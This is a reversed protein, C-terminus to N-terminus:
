ANSIKRKKKLKEFIEPCGKQKLIKMTCADCGKKM